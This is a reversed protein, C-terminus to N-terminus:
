ERWPDGESEKIDDDTPVKRIGTEVEQVEPFVDDPPTTPEIPPIPAIPGTSWSTVDHVQIEFKNYALCATRDSSSDLGDYKEQKWDIMGFTDHDDRQQIMIARVAAAYMQARELARPTAIHKKGKASCVVGVEIIWTASYPFGPSGATSYKASGTKEPDEALGTNVVILGPTQDEPMKEMETSIRWSKIPSLREEDEGSQFAVAALYTDMWRQLMEIVLQTVFHGSIIRGFVYEQTWPTQLAPPEPTAM